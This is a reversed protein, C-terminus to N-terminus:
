SIEGITNDGTTYTGDAIFGGITLIASEILDVCDSESMGGHTPDDGFRAYIIDDSSVGISFDMVEDRSKGVSLEWDGHRARFYLYHGYVVGEIQTPAPSMIGGIHTNETGYTQNLQAITDM